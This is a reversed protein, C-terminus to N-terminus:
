VIFTALKHKKAKVICSLGSKQVHKFIVLHTHVLWRQMWTHKTTYENKVHKISLKQTKSFVVSITTRVKTNTDVCQNKTVCVRFM